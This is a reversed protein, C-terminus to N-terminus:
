IINEKLDCFEFVKVSLDEIAIQFFHLFRLEQSNNFANCQFLQLAQSSAAM